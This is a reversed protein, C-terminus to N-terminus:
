KVSCVPFKELCHHILQKLEHMLSMVSYLVHGTVSKDLDCLFTSPVEYLYKVPGKEREEEVRKREHEEKKEGGWGRKEREGVEEWGRERGKEREERGRRVHIEKARVRVGERGERRERVEEREKDRERECVYM